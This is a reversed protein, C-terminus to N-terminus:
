TGGDLRQHAGQCRPWVTQHAQRRPAKGRERGFAIRVSDLNFPIPLFTGHINGLVKHEYTTWATFRSLFAWVRENDTHFIHPGYKHVLIGAGDKEDYASGAIHRKKELVLVRCGTQEALKRATVAGSFGAGVVVFDYQTDKMM